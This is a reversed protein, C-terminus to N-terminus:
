PALWNLSQHIALVETFHAATLQYTIQTVTGPATLYFEHMMRYELNQVEKPVGQFGQAGKHGSLRWTRSSDKEELYKKLDELTQIHSLELKVVNYHADNQPVELSTPSQLSVITDAELNSWEKPYTLEVGVLYFKKIIANGLEGGSHCISGWVGGVLLVLVVSIKKM